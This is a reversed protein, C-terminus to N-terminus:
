DIFYLKTKGGYFKTYMRNLNFFHSLTGDSINPAIFICYMEKGLTSKAVGFHRPVSENEMRYQTHGSSLTVETILGFESFESEIDPKQGPAYNLPSGDIDVIFNGDVRKAYNLM